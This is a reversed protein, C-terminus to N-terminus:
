GRYGPLATCNLHMEKLRDGKFIMASHARFHVRYCGEFGDSTEKLVRRRQHVPPKLRVGIVEEPRQLILPRIHFDPSDQFRM